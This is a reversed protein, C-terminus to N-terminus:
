RTSCVHGRDGRAGLALGVLADQDDVEAALVRLQDGPAHALLLAEGLDHRRGDRGRLHPGRLRDDQRAARRAHVLLARRGDVGVDEPLARGDEADAVPHLQHRVEQPAVDLAGRPSLEAARADLHRRRVPEERAERGRELHPHAV